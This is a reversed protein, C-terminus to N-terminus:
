SARWILSAFRGTNPDRRYSYFRGDIRTDFDGGHIERVGCIRLRQTALAYLDCLWHGPRTETFAAKTRHDDAVFADRVESGVEYSSAGIAPGLWAVIQDPSIGMAAVTAELVSAAMGRWGAHAAGIAAGNRAAFLVPMCDAIKIGCVLSPTHSVIADGATTTAGLPTNVPLSEAHHVDVGHVQYVWRIAATQVALASAVLRENEAVAARDDKTAYGLNLEDYPARSVGGRRTTM